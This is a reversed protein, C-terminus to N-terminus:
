TLRIYKEDLFVFLKKWNKLANWKKEEKKRHIEGNPREGVAKALISGNKLTEGKKEMCECKGSPMCWYAAGECWRVM